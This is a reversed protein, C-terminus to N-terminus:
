RRPIGDELYTTMSFTLLHSNPVGLYVKLFSIHALTYVEMIEMYYPITM